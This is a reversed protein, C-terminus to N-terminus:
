GKEYLPCSKVLYTGGTIGRRKVLVADWGEVPQWRINGQKDLGCWSCNKYKNTANKCTWCLTENSLAKSVAVSRERRSKEQKALCGCSKKIDHILYYTSAYTEKGCECVCRWEWKGSPAKVYELPTLLNMTKGKLDVTPARHKESRKMPRWALNEARCDTCDDNLHVIKMGEHAPAPLFAEAVVRRLSRTNQTRDKKTFTIIACKGRSAYPALFKNTRKNRVRGLSSVEYNDFEEVTKWEEIM